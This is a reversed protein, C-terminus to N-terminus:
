DWSALLDSSRAAELFDSSFALGPTNSPPEFSIASVSVRESVKCRLSTYSVKSWYENTSLVKFVFVFSLSTSWVSWDWVPSLELLSLGNQGIISDSSIM